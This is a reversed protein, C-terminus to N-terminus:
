FKGWGEGHTKKTAISSKNMTIKNVVHQTENRKEGALIQKSTDGEGVLRALTADCVIIHCAMQFPIPIRYVLGIDRSVKLFNNHIRGEMFTKILEAFPITCVPPLKYRRQNWYKYSLIGSLFLPVFIVMGDYVVLSLQDM